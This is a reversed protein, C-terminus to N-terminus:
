EPPMLRGTERVHDVVVRRVSLGTGVTTVPMRDALIKPVALVVADSSPKPALTLAGWWAPYWDKDGLLEAAKEASLEVIRIEDEPRMFIDLLQDEDVKGAPISPAILDNPVLMSDAEVRKAVIRAVTEVLSPADAPREGMPKASPAGFTGRDALRAGWQGDVKRLFIIRGGNTAPVDVLQNDISLRIPLALREASLPPDLALDVVNTTVVELRRPTISADISALETFQEVEQLSVWWAKGRRPTYARVSVTQPDKVRRKTRLFDAAPRLYGTILESEHGIGPAVLWRHEIGLAELQHQARRGWEIPVVLDADGHVLM